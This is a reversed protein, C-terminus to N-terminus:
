VTLKQALAKFGLERLIFRSPQLANLLLNPLYSQLTETNKTISSAIVEACIPASLFGKAGHGVNVYLGTLWPLNEVANNYFFKGNKLTNADLLLGAAPLYDATQCRWAVRGSAINKQLSEYLPMSMKKLKQLNSEHDGTRLETTNDQKSFTAGLYHLRNIAPTIYGDGCVITRLNESSAISNLYTLQGRSAILPLHATQILKGADNANAIVINEAEAVHNSLNNAHVQWANDSTRKLQLAQTNTIVKINPHAAMINCLQALNVGGAQPFYLGSHSIQTGAIQSLQEANLQQYQLASNIYAEALKNQKLELKQNIALQVVGCALYQSHEFGLMSLWNLTYLYGHINLAELATNQGTLRPYLVAFPNGSAETALSTHREILTVNINKIALAYATACGAIGGGIVIATQASM